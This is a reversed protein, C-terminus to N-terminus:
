IDRLAWAGLLFATIRSERPARWAWMGASCEMRAWTRRTGWWCWITLRLGADLERKAWQRAILVPMPRYKWTMKWCRRGRNPWRTGRATRESPLDWDM